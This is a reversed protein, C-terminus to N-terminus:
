KIVFMMLEHVKYEGEYFNHNLTINLLLPICEFSLIPFFTFWEFACEHQM